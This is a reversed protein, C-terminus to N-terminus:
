VVTFTYVTILSNNATSVSGNFYKWTNSATLISVSYKIPSGCSSYYNASCSYYAVKCSFSGRVISSSNNANFSIVELSNPSYQMDINLQGGIPSTKNGYYIHNNSPDWVHLDLDV